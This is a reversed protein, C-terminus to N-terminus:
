AYFLRQMYVQITGSNRALTPPGFKQRHRHVYIRLRVLSDPKEYVRLGSALTFPGTKPLHNTFDQEPILKM